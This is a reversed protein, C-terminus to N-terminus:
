KEKLTSRSDVATILKQNISFMALSTM